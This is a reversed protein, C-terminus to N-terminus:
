YDYVTFVFTTSYDKVPLTVSIGSIRYQIPVDKQDDYTYFFRTDTDGIIQYSLGDYISYNNNTGRDTRQIELILETHWDGNDEKHINVVTQQNKHKANITIKTEDHDSEYTGVYDNGAENLDSIWNRGSPWTWKGKVSIEQSFLCNSIILIAILLLNKM